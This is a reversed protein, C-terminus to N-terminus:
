SLSYYEENDTMKSDYLFKNAICKFGRDGPHSAVGGATIAIYSGTISLTGDSYSYSDYPVKSQVSAGSVQFTLIKQSSDDDYSSITYDTTTSSGSNYVAGIYSANDSVNSISRFDIFECGTKAANEIVTDMNVHGYWSGMWIVRANPVTQRIKQMLYLSTEPFVAKKDDTNVNDGLQIVVLDLDSTLLPVLTTDVWNKASQVSTMGEWTHGETKSPVYSSNNAEIFSNILAYYDNDSSSAAMGFESFGVLLSNGIFLSKNPIVPISSIEGSDSVSLMFKKGSPSVLINDDNDVSQDGELTTLDTDIASIWKALDMNYRDSNGSYESYVFNELLTFVYYGSGSGANYHVFLGIAVKEANEYVAYYNLDVTGKIEGYDFGQIVRYIPSSSGKPIIIANLSANLYNPSTDGLFRDCQIDYSVFGQPDLYKTAFLGIDGNSDPTFTYPRDKIMAGNPSYPYTSSGPYWAYQDFPLIRGASRLASYISYNLYPSIRKDKVLSNEGVRSSLVGSNNGTRGTIYLKTSTTFTQIQNHEPTTEGLRNTVNDTGIYYSFWPSIGVFLYTGAPVEIMYAAKYDGPATESSVQWSPEADTGEFMWYRDAIFDNDNLYVVCIEDKIYNLYNFDSLFGIENQYNACDEISAAIAERVEEGYVANRIKAVNESVDVTAM